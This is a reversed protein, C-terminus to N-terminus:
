ERGTMALVLSVPMLIVIRLLITQRGTAGTTMAPSTGAVKARDAPARTAPVLGAMVLPVCDM